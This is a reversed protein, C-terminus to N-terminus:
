ANIKHDAFMRILRRAHKVSTTVSLCPFAIGTAKFASKIKKWNSGTFLKTYSGKIRYEEYSYKVHFTVH